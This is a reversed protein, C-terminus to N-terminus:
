CEDILENSGCKVGFLGTVTIVNRNLVLTSMGFTISYRM